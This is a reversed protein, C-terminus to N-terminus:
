YSTSGTVSLLHQLEYVNGIHVKVHTQWSDVIASMECAVYMNLWQFKGM